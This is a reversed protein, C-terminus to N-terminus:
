EVKFIKDIKIVIAGKPKYSSGNQKEKAIDFYKGSSYYEAKGFAKFWINKDNDHALLVCNPNNKINEKALTMQCDCILLEDQSIIVGSQTVTVNPLKGDSTGLYILGKELINKAENPINM